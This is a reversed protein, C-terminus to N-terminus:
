HLSDRFLGFTSENNLEKGDDVSVNFTKASDIIDKKIVREVISGTAAAEQLDLDQSLDTGARPSYILPYLSNDTTHSPLTDCDPSLSVCPANSVRHGRLTGKLSRGSTPDLFLHLALLWLIM